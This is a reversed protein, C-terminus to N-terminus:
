KTPISYPAAVRYYAGPYIKEYHSIISEAYGNNLLETIANNFASILAFEGKKVVVSNGYVIVPKALSVDKIKGPNNKMYLNALVPESFTMDAKGDAVNLLLQSADSSLPLQVTKANPFQNVAITQSSQGDITAITYQKDNAIKYNNDFRADDARVYADVPNYFVPVSLEAVRGRASTSYFGSGVMDCRGSNLAEAMDGRSIEANWDVKLSMSEAAKNVMDFFVGSFKGTNPDKVFYPAYAAYCVRITGSKIVKDYVTSNQNQPKTAAFKVTVFAVIITLVILGLVKLWVAKQNDM